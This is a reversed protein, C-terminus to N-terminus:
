SYFAPEDCPVYLSVHHVFRLDVLILSDLLERYDDLRKQIDHIATKKRLVMFTKGLSQRKTKPGHVKLNELEAVLEQATDSCKVGFRWLEDKDGRDALDLSTRLGTLCTAMEELETNECTVGDKYLELGKKALKTGADVVQIIGCVLSFATFPDM